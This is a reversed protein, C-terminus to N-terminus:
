VFLVLFVLFVEGDGILHVIQHHFYNLHNKKSAIQYAHVQDGQLVLVILRFRILSLLFHFFFLSARQYKPLHKLVIVLNGLHALVAMLISVLRFTLQLSFQMFLQEDM